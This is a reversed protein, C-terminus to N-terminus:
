SSSTRTPRRTGRTTTPQRRKSVANESLPHGRRMGCATPRRRPRSPRARRARPPSNGDTPSQRAWAGRRGERAGGRGLAARLTPALLLAHGGLVRAGHPAREKGDRVLATEDVERAPQGFEADLEDRRTAGRARQALRPELHDVDLRQRAAGLHEATADLRQVGADVAAHEGPAVVFAVTRVEGAVVQLLDVQDHHVQIRELGGDRLRVHGQRLGHLLDVDAPGGHDARRRLVAGVDADDHIGGVVRVHQGLQAVGAPEAVGGAAPQRQAGELARRAVVGGDVGPQGAPLAAPLVRKGRLEADVEAAGRQQAVALVSFGWWRAARYPPKRSTTSGSWPL